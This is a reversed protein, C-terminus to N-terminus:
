DTQAHEMDFEYITELMAERNRLVEAVCEPVEMEVGRKILWSRENVFVVVDEQDKKSRPIKIRVKREEVPTEEVEPTETEPIEKKSSM